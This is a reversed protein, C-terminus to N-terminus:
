IIASLVNEICAENEFCYSIHELINNNDDASRAVRNNRMQSFMEIVQIMNDIMETNVASFPSNRLSPSGNRSIVPSFKRWIQVAMPAPEDNRRKYTNMAWKAVSQAM